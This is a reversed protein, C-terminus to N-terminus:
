KSTLNFTLVVTLIFRTRIGNLLLPEYRWQKVADLAAKDLFKGASRLVKVDQVIGDENVTAELIATGQLFASVAVEPYVPDVRKILAPPQINGGTRVPARPANPAPPPPPPPIEFLLGGLVGGVVGGPIGGEVGGAVGEEGEDDFPPPEIRTPMEVPAAPANPTPQTAPPTKREAAPPPPPPPPPPPAPPAAVFALMTPTEPLQGTVFLIPVVLAAVLAVQSTTSILMPLARRRPLHPAKGTILDFM